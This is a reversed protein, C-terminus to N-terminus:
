YQGLLGRNMARREARKFLFVGLVFYATSNAAFLGGALASFGFLGTGVTMADRIMSSGRVIPLLELFPSLSVPVAVLGLFAFQVVQLFAQIQKLIIALGAIM